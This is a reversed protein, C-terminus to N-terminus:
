TFLAADHIYENHVLKMRRILKSILVELDRAEPYYVVAGYRVQDRLQELVDDADGMRGAVALGSAQQVLFRSAGAMQDSTFMGRSALSNFRTLLDSFTTPPMLMPALVLNSSESLAGRDDEALILYERRENDQLPADIFVTGRLVAIEEFPRHVWTALRSDVTGPDDAGTGGDTGGDANAILNSEADTAGSASLDFGFTSLTSAASTTQQTDGVPFPRLSVQEVKARMVHYRVAGPAPDWSVVPQRQYVEAEARPPGLFRPADSPAQGRFINLGYFDNATGLFLGYPTDAFSRTGYNFRGDLPDSYDTDGPSRFGSMTVPTWYWGDPSRYVDTGELHQFAPGVTPDDKWNITADYTGAYLFGDHDGQRWIHDNFQHAFGDELGSLPYIWAGSPTRRPSGVLLDWTDDPNIRILEAPNDTGVYLRGEFVHMSVVSASPKQGNQASAKLFAGGPVVTIFEYPDGQAKTKLVTYGGSYDQGGLYLWGNFPEMEFFMKGPPGVEAWADNGTRPSSSGLLVGSGQITGHLTFLSGGYSTPSRFSGRELEGMFTGDAQPIPTFSGKEGTTTYLIRPPDVVKTGDWLAATSVGVAYLAEVGDKDKHIEMGRFGVDRAVFLGTRGPVPEDKPSQFLREWSGRPDGGSTPPSWAWIEAQLPLEAPDTTCAQDPDPPPYPFLFAAIRALSARSFCRYARSTGVFLKPTASGPARWWKMSWAWSNQRDGFGQSFPNNPDSPGAVFPAFDKATLPIGPDASVDPARGLTSTLLALALSARWTARRLSFRLM